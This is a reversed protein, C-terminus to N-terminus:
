SCITISIIVMLFASAFHSKEQATPIRGYFTNGGPLKINFDLIKTPYDADDNNRVLHIMFRRCWRTYNNITSDAKAEEEKLFLKLKNVFVIVGKENVPKYSYRFIYM